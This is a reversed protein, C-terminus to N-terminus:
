QLLFLNFEGSLLCGGVKDSEEERIIFSQAMFLLTNCSVDWISRKLIFFSSKKVIQHCAFMISKKKTGVFKLLILFSQDNGSALHDLDPITLRLDHTQNGLPSTSQVLIHDTPLILKRDVLNPLSQQCISFHDQM